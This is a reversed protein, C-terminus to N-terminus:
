VQEIRYRVHADDVQAMSCARWEELALAYDAFPGLRKEGGAEIETFDTNRYRGGVVWYDRSGTHEIRYKVFASDVFKMSRAAWDTRASGLDAFPGHREEAGGGAIEAFETDTYEGGVVWYTDSM